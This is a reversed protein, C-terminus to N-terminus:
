FEYSVGISVTRGLPRLDNVYEENNFTQSVVQEANLINKVSVNASVGQLLEQTAKFDLTSRGREFLDNGNRTVTDLRDGFRNFFVNISTGSNPNEYGANLNLLYPSQGQLRRTDDANVDFARIAELVDQPRSVQSHTLTLNAGVQVYQLWSAVQDLRKRAELEVGYVTASSRNVYTVVDNAAARPEITREIPDIFDKYFAGASLLEGPRVFWEWRLDFNNVLTRDLDPNGREIYDGVFQFSEFPAFERFTPRAITRGYSARLNMADRLEWVINTSPLIDTAAFQGERRNEGLTIISMDTYEIRVGGIFRASPIWPISFDAMIFGAGVEQDGDYNNRPDTFDRVYTGFRPRGRDDTRVVGAQEDVYTDPNCSFDAEDSGHQFVRERFDRAKARYRGGTKLTVSGVPIEVSADAVWTDENLDRFFRAPPLFISPSIGCATDAEVVSFQNSFFRYDPEDRTARSWTASWEARVNRSGTGFDHSGNL